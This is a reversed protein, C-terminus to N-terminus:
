SRHRMKIANAPCVSVCEGCGNCLDPDMLLQTAGGVVQKFEISQVECHSSCSRCIVGRKSFCDDSIDAYLDFPASDTLELAGPKCVAVCVECFDCGAEEFNMEALGNDALKIANMPCERVCQECGDCRVVFETEIRAWPPRIPRQHPLDEIVLSQLASQKTM